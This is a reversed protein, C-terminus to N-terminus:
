KWHNYQNGKEPILRLLKTRTKIKKKISNQTGNWKKEKYDSSGTTKM